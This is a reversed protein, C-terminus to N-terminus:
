SQTPEWYIDPVKSRLKKYREAWAARHRRYKKQDETVPYRNQIDEINETSSVRKKTLPDIKFIVPCQDAIRKAVEQFKDVVTSISMTSRISIEDASYTSATESDKKQFSDPDFHQTSSKSSTITNRRKKKISQAMFQISNLM